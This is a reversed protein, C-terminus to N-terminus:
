LTSGVITVDVQAGSGTYGTIVAWVWGNVTVNGSLPWTTGGDATSTVVPIRVLQSSTPATIVYKGTGTTQAIQDLPQYTAIRATLGQATPGANNGAKTAIVQGITIPCVTETGDIQNRYDNAGVPTPCSSASAYPPSTTGNDPSANTTSIVDDAGVSYSSMSRATIVLAADESEDWNTFSFRRLPPADHLEALAYLVMGVPENAAVSEVGDFRLM